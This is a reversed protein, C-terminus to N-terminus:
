EHRLRIPTNYDAFNALYFTFGASALMWVLTSLVAGWSLWRWKAQERDPGFRYVASIAGAVVVAIL